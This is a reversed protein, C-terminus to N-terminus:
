LINPLKSIVGVACIRGKSRLAFRGLANCETFQEIYIDRSTEIRISATKESSIIKPYKIVGQKSLVRYFKTM